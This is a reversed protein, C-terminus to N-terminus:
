FECIQYAGSKTEVYSHGQGHTINNKNKSGETLVTKYYGNGANIDNKGKGVSIYNDGYQGLIENDGNGLMIFDHGEGGYIKNNGHGAVIFDSGGSGCIENNGDGVVIRDDGRGGKIFNDGHGAQITIGTKVSDDVVVKNNGPGLDLILNEAKRKPFTHEEENVSVKLSGTLWNQKVDINDNGKTGVIKVISDNDYNLIEVNDNYRASVDNEPIEVRDNERGYNLLEYMRDGLVDTRIQM